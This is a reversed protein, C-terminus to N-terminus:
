APHKTQAPASDYEFPKHCSAEAEIRETERKKQGRQGTERLLGRSGKDTRGRVDRSRDERIDNNACSIDGGISGAVRFRIRRAGVGQLKQRRPIVGNRGRALSELRLFGVVNHQLHLLRWTEIELELDAVHALANSTLAEAM